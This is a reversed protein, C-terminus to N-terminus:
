ADVFVSGRSHLHAKIELLPAHAHAPLLMALSGVQVRVLSDSRIVPVGGGDGLSFLPWTDLQYREQLMSNDHYYQLQGVLMATANGTTGTVSYEEPSFYPIRSHYLTEPGSDPFTNVLPTIHPANKLLYDVVDATEQTVDSDDDHLFIQAVHRSLNRRTLEEVIWQVEPATLYSSYRCTPPQAPCATGRRNSFFHSQTPAPTSTVVKCLSYFHLPALASNREWM